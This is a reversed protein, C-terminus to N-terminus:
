PKFASKNGSGGGGGSKSGHVKAAASLYGKDAGCSLGLWAVMESTADEAIESFVYSM